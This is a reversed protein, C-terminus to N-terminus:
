DIMDGVVYAVCVNSGVEKLKCMVKQMDRENIEKTEVNGAENNVEEPDTPTTRGLFCNCYEWLSEMNLEEDTISSGGQM